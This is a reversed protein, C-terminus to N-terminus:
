VRVWSIFGIGPDTPGAEVAHQYVTTHPEQFQDVSSIVPEFTGSTEDFLRQSSKNSIDIEKKRGTGVDEFSCKMVQNDDYACTVRIEQESPRGPPLELEGKWIVKVFRPDTEPSTSETVQCEVETQGERVTYVRTLLLM